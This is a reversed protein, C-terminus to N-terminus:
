AGLISVWNLNSMRGPEYGEARVVAGVAGEEAMGPLAHRRPVRSRSFAVGAPQAGVVLHRRLRGVPRRRLGSCKPFTGFNPFGLQTM